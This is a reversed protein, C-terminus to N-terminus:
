GIECVGERDWPDPNLEVLTEGIRHPSCHIPVIKGAQCASAGRGHPLRYGLGKGHSRSLQCLSIAVSFSFVSGMPSHTSSSVGRRGCPLAKWWVGRVVAPVSAETNVASRSWTNASATKVASEYFATNWAAANSFPKSSTKCTVQLARDQAEMAVLFDPYHREVIQYLLTQEPRRREYGPTVNGEATRASLM